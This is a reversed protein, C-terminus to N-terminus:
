TLLMWKQHTQKTLINKGIELVNMVSKLAGRGDDDNQCSKIMDKYQSFPINDPLQVHSFAEDIINNRVKKIFDYFDEPGLIDEIEPSIFLDEREKEGAFVIKKIMEDNKLKERLDMPILNGFKNAAKDIANIIKSQNGSNELHAVINKLDFEELLSGTIRKRLLDIFYDNNDNKFQKIISFLAKIISSGNMGLSQSADLNKRASLLDNVVQGEFLYDIMAIMKDAVIITEDYNKHTHLNLLEDNMAKLKKDEIHLEKLSGMRQDILKLLKDCEQKKKHKEVSETNIKAMKASQIAKEYSKESEQPNQISDGEAILDNASKLFTDSKNAGIKSAEQINDIAEKRKDIATSNDSEQMRDMYDKLQDSNKAFYFGFVLSATIKITDPIPDPFYIFIAIIFAILITIAMIGRVTGRPMGFTNSMVLQTMVNRDKGDYKFLQKRSNNTYFLLGIITGVILVFFIIKETFPIPSSKQKITKKLSRIERENKDIIDKLQQNESKLNIFETQTSKKISPNQAYVNKSYNICTMLLFIAICIIAKKRIKIM